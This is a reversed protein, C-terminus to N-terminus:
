SQARLKRIGLRPCVNPYSFQAQSVAYMGVYVMGEGKLAAAPTAECRCYTKVVLPNVEVLPQTESNQGTCYPKSM